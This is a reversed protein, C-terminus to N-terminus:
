LSRPGHLSVGRLTDMVMTQAKYIANLSEDFHQMYADFHERSLITTSQLRRRLPPPTVLGEGAMCFRNNYNMDMIQRPREFPPSSVDV